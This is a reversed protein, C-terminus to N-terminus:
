IKSRELGSLFDISDFKLRYAIKHLVYPALVRNRNARSHRDVDIKIIQNKTHKCKLINTYWFQNEFLIRQM